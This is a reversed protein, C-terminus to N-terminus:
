VLDDEEGTAHQSGAGRVAREELRETVADLRHRFLEVHVRGVHRRAAVPECDFPLSDQPLRLRMAEVAEVEEAVRAAAGGAQGEGCRM